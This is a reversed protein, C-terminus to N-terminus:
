TRDGAAGTRSPPALRATDPTSQRSARGPQQRETALRQRETELARREETLHQREALLRREAALQQKEAELQRRETELPASTSTVSAHPSTGPAAVRFVFDGKDLQPHRIKGYQPHQAERSYNVVRNQLFEGLETGTVYGDGNTDAEGRLAAIFQQRFISKDPVQEQEDGSTIFQRVPQATKYSIHEPVARSLAFLSGSFCSDFLFLVHKADITLAYEEIRQMSLALRKFDNSDHNPNPADRPVLYGLPNGGYQPRLTHGHGAFYVLLRHDKNGGYASIFTEFAADMQAKTPDLVTTVQFGQEHLIEQVARIDAQVGPLNPWGGTYTSVGIVLAHSASYSGVLQGSRDQVPVVALSRLAGATQAVQLTDATAYATTWIVMLLWVGCCASQHLFCSLRM